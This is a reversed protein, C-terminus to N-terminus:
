AQGGAAEETERRSSNRSQSPAGDLHDDHVLNEWRNLAAAASGRPLLERSAPLAGARDAAPDGAHREGREERGAARHEDLQHGAM